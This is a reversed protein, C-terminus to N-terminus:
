HNSTQLKFISYMCHANMNRELYQSKFPTYFVKRQEFGYKKVINKLSEQNYFVKHDAQSHYGAFTPVGVILLGHPKLVRKIELLTPHPDELHEIVNDFIVSDFNNSQIPFTNDKINLASLNKSSCYDVCFPNIDVGVSGKRSQLFVGLGCGVDLTKGKLHLNLLPYLFYKRYLRGKWTTINLHDFYDQQSKLSSQDVPVTMVKNTDKM